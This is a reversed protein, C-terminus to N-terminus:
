AGQAAKRVEGAIAIWAGQIEGLLGDVEDLALRDNRLNAHLLRRVMYDYLRELQTALEGGSEKDLSVKLGNNIIDIAKSISMGRTEIKKQEMAFRAASLAARAGDFLLLILQHPDASQVTVDLGVQKYAQSPNLSAFM